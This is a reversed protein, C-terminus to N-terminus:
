SSCLPPYILCRPKSDACSLYGLVCMVVVVLCLEGRAGQVSPQVEAAADVATLDVASDAAAAVAQREQERDEEEQLARRDSLDKLERLRWEEQLAEQAQALSAAQEQCAAQQM